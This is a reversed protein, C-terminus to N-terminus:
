CEWEAETPLRVASCLRESAWACFALADERSPGVAPMRPHTFMAEQWFQPAPHHTADLFAQYEQRTVPTRALRFSPVWVEHRPNENDRPGGGMWFRQGPVAIWDCIMQGLM